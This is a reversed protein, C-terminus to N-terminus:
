FPITDDSPLGGMPPSPQVPAPQVPPPPPPPPGSVPAAPAPPPAAPAAAAGAFEGRGSLFDEIRKVRVALAQLAADGNGGQQRQAQPSGSGNGKRKVTYSDGYRESRFLECDVDIPVGTPLEEFARLNLTIPTGDPKTAIVQHLNYTGGSSTTGSATVKTSTVVIQTSFKEKM